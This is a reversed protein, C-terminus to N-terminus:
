HMTWIPEYKHKGPNNGQTARLTYRGESGTTVTGRDTWVYQAFFDREELSDDGDIPFIAGRV